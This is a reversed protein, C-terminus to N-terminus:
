RVAVATERALARVAEVLTPRVPIVRGLGTIEFVQCVMDTACAITLGGDARITKYAQVIVSLGSSDMFSVGLLDLVIRRRGRGLAAALADRLRPATALDLEGTVSVVIFEASPSTTVTFGPPEGAAAATEM